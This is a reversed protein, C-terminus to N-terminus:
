KIFVDDVLAEDPFPVPQLLQALGPRWDEFECSCIVDFSFCIFFTKNLQGNSTPKLFLFNGFQRLKSSPWTVNCTGSTTTTTTKITKTVITPHHSM